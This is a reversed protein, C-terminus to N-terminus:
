PKAKRAALMADARIFRIKAQWTAQWVEWGVPDSVMDKEPMKGALAECLEWSFNEDNSIKEKGAFWDRLSMGPQPDHAWGHGAWPNLPIGAHSYAPLGPASFAPGGDDIPEHKALQQWNEDTEQISAPDSLLEELTTNAKRWTGGNASHDVTDGDVIWRWIADKFYRKM